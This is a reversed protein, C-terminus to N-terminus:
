RSMSLCPISAFANLARQTGLKQNRTELQLDAAGTLPALLPLALSGGLGLTDPRFFPAFTVSPNGTPIQFKLNPIEQRLGTQDRIDQGPVTLLPLPSTYPYSSM